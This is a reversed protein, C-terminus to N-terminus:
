AGSGIRSTATAIRHCRAAKADYYPQTTEGDCTRREPRHDLVRVQLGRSRTVSRPLALRSPMSRCVPKKCLERPAANGCTLLGLPPPPFVTLVRVGCTLRHPHIRLLPPWTVHSRRQLSQPARFLPSWTREGYGTQPELHSNRPASAIVREVPTPLRENSGDSPKFTATHM